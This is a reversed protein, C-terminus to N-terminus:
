TSPLAPAMPVASVAMATGTKLSFFSPNYRVLTRIAILKASIIFVVIITNYKNMLVFYLASLIM